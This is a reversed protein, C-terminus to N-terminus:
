AATSATDDHEAHKAHDHKKDKNKCEGGKEGRGCAGSCGGSLGPLHNLGGCSGKIEKNSFIVGLAMGIVALLFVLFTVLFTGM